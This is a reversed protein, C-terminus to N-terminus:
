FRTDPYRDCDGHEAVVDMRASELDRILISTEDPTMDFWLVRGDETRLSQRVVPRGEDDFTMYAQRPGQNPLVKWPKKHSMTHAGENTTSMVSALRDPEDIDVGTPLSEWPNPTSVYGILGTAETM